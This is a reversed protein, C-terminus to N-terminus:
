RREEADERLWLELVLLSFTLYAWNRDLMTERAIVAKTFDPDLFRNVQADPTGLTDLLVSQLPGTLWEALPVEFGRKPASLVEDPVLGRYADRLIAKGRGRRVKYEDPLKWAFEAVHHDIFPSRGELSSAMTAIDMKVLLDSALNLHLDMLMFQDLSSLGTRLHDEVLSETARTQGGRWHQQKDPERLMDTTWTLYREGPTMGMGRLIRTLLGVSGRRNGEARSLFRALPGPLGPARVGGVYRAAAYRRYGAFTEDGGDGNLAVTVHQRALRSVEFAPVCSPDAYPQDYSGVITQLNELANPGIQLVTNTVGLHEATRRAVSSEDLSGATAITFTQLNEGALQAAHYAIITSDVGGSLLVGLPVDSRLRVRVADEIVARCQEQAEAYSISTKPEMEPRWYRQVSRTEGDIVMLHGAPLALVGEYVTAPQPVVSLSLFDSIAQDSVRLAPGHSGILVRLAKLESAFVFSDADDRYYLPKKGLRDRGLVLRRTQTDYVAFAFMGRLHQVFADGYKDYLNLLVETDSDTRFRYSGLHDRRLERYNYIEGNFVVVLRGDTSTMPQHGGEVDIVSLRCMGLFVDDRRFSGSDDPGRHRLRALAQDLSEPVRRDSSIGGAIGCM